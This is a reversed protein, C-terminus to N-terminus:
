EAAFAFTYLISELTERLAVDPGADPDFYYCFFNMSLGNRITEAYLYSGQDDEMHFLYFVTGSKATIANLFTPHEDALTASVEDAYAQKGADDATSLNFDPDYDNLRTVYADIVYENDGLMFLWTNDATSEATHSTNDIRLGVPYEIAYYDGATYSVACATALSLMMFLSLLVAIWKRM